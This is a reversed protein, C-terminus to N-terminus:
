KKRIWSSSIINYLKIVPLYVSLKKHYRHEKCVLNGFCSRWKILWKILVSAKRPVL